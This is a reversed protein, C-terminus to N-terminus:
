SVSLICISVDYEIVSVGMNSLLEWKERGQPGGSSHTFSDTDAMDLLIHTNEGNVIIPLVPRASM